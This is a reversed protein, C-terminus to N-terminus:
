SLSPLLDLKIKPESNVVLCFFVNLCFRIFHIMKPVVMKHTKDLSQYTKRRVRTYESLFIRCVFLENTVMGDDENNNNNNYYSIPHCHPSGDSFFGDNQDYKM